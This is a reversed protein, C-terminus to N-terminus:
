QQKHLWDITKQLGEKLPIFSYGLERQAKSSDVNWDYYYKRIWPPTLLPPKGTLKTYLQLINGAVMM